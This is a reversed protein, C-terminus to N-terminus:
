AYNKRLDNLKSLIEDSINGVVVVNGMSKIEKIFHAFQHRAPGPPLKDMNDELLAGLEDTKIGGNIKRTFENFIGDIEIEKSRSLTKSISESPTSLEGSSDRGLVLVHPETRPYDGTGSCNYNINISKGGLLEPIKIKVESEKGKEHITGVPPTFETLAFGSPIGDTVVINELEVDGKNQIRVSISFEGESLGPKVSKLTKLKRAVYKINIVPEEPPSIIFEKGKIFVNAKVEVPTNYRVEPKPNRALIPYSMSIESNPPVQSKLGKLRITIIHKSDPNQDDPNIELAEIFEVKNQIEFVGGMNKVEIKLDKDKLPPVFDPPIEDIIELHDINSTGLNPISNVITMDTNAYAAVEPPNITKHVETSLVHYITPEKIIEGIVRTIVGFLPTFEIESALDPVNQGDVLFDKEWSQEPDLEINPTESVVNESGTPINHSVKVYELRVKFESDNIFEVNCDWTAPNSGEERTVGSMSDTEGRVEPKILTLIKNDILYNVRLNGLNQDKREKVNVICLVELTATQKPPLNEIKWTLIKKGEEQGLEANGVNPSKIDIDQLLPPIEKTVTIETFPIELTNTLDIKLNCKNTNEYLFANNIKGSIDREADFTEIVKLCPEKLNQIEYEQKFEQNPNIAGVNLEKNLNTNITEKLDCSLNWLRSKQSTNKILLTGKGKIEKINHADTAGIGTPSLVTDEYDTIDIVILNKLESMKVM